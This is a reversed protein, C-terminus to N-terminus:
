EFSIRLDNKHMHKEACKFRSELNKCKSEKMTKTATTKIVLKALPLCGFLVWLKTTGFLKGIHTKRFSCSERVYEKSPDNKKKVTKKKKYLVVIFSHGRDPM